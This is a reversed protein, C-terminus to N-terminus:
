EVVGVFPGMFDSYLIGIHTFRGAGLLYPFVLKQIGEPLFVVLGVIIRVLISWGSATTWLSRNLWDQAGSVRAGRRGDAKSIIRSTGTSSPAAPPSGCRRARRLIICHGHSISAAIRTASWFRICASRCSAAPRLVTRM